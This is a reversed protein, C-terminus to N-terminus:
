DLVPEADPRLRGLEVEVARVDMLQVGILELDRLRDSTCQSVADTVLVTRYDRESADFLSARPCNPLNCGAVVVTDIGRASLEENLRTRYFASWRPKYVILETESLRQPEGRLLLETDLRVPTGAPLLSEPIESGTTGPAAVRAGSEISARRVPDADSSGPVYLRVVHIIPRGARRFASVLRELGPLISATGAVPLAGDIFDHQVDIVLLAARDFHATLYDNTM